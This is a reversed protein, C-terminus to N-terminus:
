AKPAKSRRARYGTILFGAGLLLISAPEPLVVDDGIFLKGLRVQEVESLSGGGSATIDVSTILQGDAVTLTFFGGAPANITFAQTECVPNGGVTFQNCALFTIVTGDATPKIRLIVENTSDFNLFDIQLMTWITTTSVETITAQGSAGPMINVDATFLVQRPIGSDNVTGILTKDNDTLDNQCTTDGAPCNFLVNNGTGAAGATFIIDASSPSAGLATGLALMAGVVVVRRTM